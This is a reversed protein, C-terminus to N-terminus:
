RNYTNRKHLQLKCYTAARRSVEEGTSHRNKLLFADIESRKFFVAGGTPKYFPIANSSTLKYLQSKSFGTYQRCEDVTLVEKMGSNTLLEEIRRLRESIEKYSEETM